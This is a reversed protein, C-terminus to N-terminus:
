GPVPERAGSRRRTPVGFIPVGPWQTAFHILNQRKLRVNRFVFLFPIVNCLLIFARYQERIELLEQFLLYEGM